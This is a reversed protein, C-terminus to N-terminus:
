LSTSTLATQSAHGGTAGHVPPARRLANPPIFDSCTGVFWALCVKGGRDYCIYCFSIVM